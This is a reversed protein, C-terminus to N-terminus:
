GEGVKVSRGVFGKVKYKRPKGKHFCIYTVEVEGELEGL